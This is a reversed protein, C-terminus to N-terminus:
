GRLKSSNKLILEYLCLLDEGTYPKTNKCLLGALDDDDIGLQECILRAQHWTPLWVLKDKMTEVSGFIDVFRNLNLIFYVRNPFPSPPEIHNGPDWVFCGVHIRWPLGAEKLAQAMKCARIDFSTPALDMDPQFPTAKM